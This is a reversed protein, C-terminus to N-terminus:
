KIKKVLKNFEGFKKKLVEIASIIIEEPRLGCVSEINFIFKGNSVEYGVVAAQWKAHERGIGLQATAELQLEQGELLEVIPIKPYVPKVNEDTSKLDEAYVTCPGKKKLLLKVQCRSCGKGNCSCESPLNYIKRDFTLPILGLRHAIIEDNLASDNKKFDVWEIAMTPVESLMVRRLASALSQSIGEVSFKIETDTKNLIKVKM